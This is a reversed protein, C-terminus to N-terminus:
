TMWAPLFLIKHEEDLDFNGNYCLVGLSVKPTKNMFSILNKIKNKFLQSYHTIEFPIIKANVTIVFDIEKERQLEVFLFKIKQFLILSRNFKM